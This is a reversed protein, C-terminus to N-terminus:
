RDSCLKVIEDKKKLIELWDAPISEQGYILSALSGAVAGVTDTDEGLNVAKLVCEEFSNSNLVCWVAAELTYVVYGSSRIEQEPLAAFDPAFLRAYAATEAEPNAEYWTKAANLGKQVTDKRPENLLAWILFSYIECGVQSRRHGHTLCSIDDILALKQVM